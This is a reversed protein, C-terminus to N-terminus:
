SYFKTIENLYTDIAKYGLFLEDTSAYKNSVIFKLEKVRIKLIEESEFRLEDDISVSWLKLLKIQENIQVITTDELQKFNYKNLLNKETNLIRPQVIQFGYIKQMISYNDAIRRHSYPVSSKALMASATLESESDQILDISTSDIIKEEYYMDVIRKFM